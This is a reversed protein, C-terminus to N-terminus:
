FPQNVTVTLRCGQPGCDGGDVPDNNGGSGGAANAILGVLLVGGIIYVYKPLGGTASAGDDADPTSGAGAALESATPGAPEPATISRVLPSFAYGRVTRNGSTDRAQIYYEIASTSEPDTPIQAVYTSSFSLRTMVYRSYSTEGMFRYYLLVQDLEEDDVVSAVFTQRISAEAEFVIDHEILPPEVDVYQEGQTYRVGPDYQVRQLDSETPSLRLPADYQALVHGSMVLTQSLAFWMIVLTKFCRPM